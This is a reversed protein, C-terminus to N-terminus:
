QAPQPTKQSWGVLPVGLTSITDAQAALCQRLRLCATSAARRVLRDSSHGESHGGREKGKTALKGLVIWDDLCEVALNKAGTTEGTGGKTKAFAHRMM